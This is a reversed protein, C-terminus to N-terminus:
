DPRAEYELRPTAIPAGSTDFFPTTRWRGSVRALLLRSSLKLIVSIPLQKVPKPEGLASAVHVIARPPGVAQDLVEPGGICCQLLGVFSLKPSGATNGIPTNCCRAYWRLPGKASLKLCALEGIGQSFTISAPATQVIDSGGQRDLISLETGLVGPFAQCSACYCVARNTWSPNTVAGRINGCACQIKLSASM